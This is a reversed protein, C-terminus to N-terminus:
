HLAKKYQNYFHLPLFGLILISVGIVLMISAGKWHLVKFLTGALTLSTAIYGLFYMLKKMNIEKKTTSLEITDQEIKYLNGKHFQGLAQQLAINFDDLHNNEIECCIHDVLSDALDTITIGHEKVTKHIFDIHYQQLKM